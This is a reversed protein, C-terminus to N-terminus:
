CIGGSGGRVGAGRTAPRSRKQGPRRALAHPLHVPAAHARSAARLCLVRAGSKSRAGGVENRQGPARAMSIRAQLAAHNRRNRAAPDGWGRQATGMRPRSTRPSPSYTVVDAHGMPGPSPRAAPVYEAAVVSHPTKRNWVAAQRPAGTRRTCM